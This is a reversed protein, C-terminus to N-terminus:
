PMPPYLNNAALYKVIPPPVLTSVDKGERLSKRIDASRISLQAMECNGLERIWGKQKFYDFVKQEPGALSFTSLTQCLDDTKHPYVYLSTKDELLRGLGELLGGSLTQYFKEDFLKELFVASVAFGMPERTYQHLFSKLEFFLAFRSILVHYGLANLMRIRHRIDENLTLHSQSIEAEPLSIECVVMPQIKQESRIQQCSKELIEVHTNTPPSFTAREVLLPKQYFVDGCYLLEHKPGFLAADCLNRRVLELNVFLDDFLTFAPGSFRILDISLRGEKIDETLIDIFADPAQRFYLSAFMLNVGLIGLVEQQQLRHRDLMRVHMIVDSTPAHPATQFRFGIWGHCRATDASTAVTSAFAFFHTHDGRQKDLREPLLDYEKQLMKELRSECVYRGNKERGYIEDSFTMDYASITKAITQSAKGAQFFYRAVEQGAGIEAFTGYINPDQNIYLAKGITTRRQTM